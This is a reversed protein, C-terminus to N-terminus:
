SHAINGNLRRHIAPWLGDFIGDFMIPSLHSLARITKPTWVPRPVRVDLTESSIPRARVDIVDAFYVWKAVQQEEVVIRYEAAWQVSNLVLGAEEWAERVVADDPHEGIEVKGGPVEWGREPHLVWVFSDFLFAFMLVSHAKDARRAVDFHLGTAPRYLHFDRRWNSM